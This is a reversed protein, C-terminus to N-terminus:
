VCGWDMGGGRGGADGGGRHGGCLEVRWVGGRVRSGGRGRWRQAARGDGVGMGWSGM